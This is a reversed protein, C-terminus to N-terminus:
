NFFFGYIRVSIKLMKHVVAGIINFYVTYLVWDTFHRIPKLMNFSFMM